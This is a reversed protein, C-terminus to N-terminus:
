KGEDRGMKLDSILGSYRSLMGLFRLRDPGRVTGHWSLQTGNPAFGWDSLAKFLADEARIATLRCQLMTELEIGTSLQQDLAVLGQDLEIVRNVLDAVEDLRHSSILMVSETRAALLGFLGRRAEPDLNAAPEDLILLKANRGLAIAILVKQKQGGSLKSFPQNRIEDLSLKLHEAVEFFNGVPVGSVDASFRLLEKVPMRLPPALQPVFVTQTLIEERHERPELGFVKAQGKYALEGLLTRILTTKGAGNAGVLAVRQGATIELRAIKLVEKRYTKSVQNLEIM